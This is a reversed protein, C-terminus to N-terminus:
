LSSEYLMYKLTNIHTLHNLAVIWIVDIESHVYTYPSKFRSNMYCRNWQTYTYPSKFRRNMYCRTWWTLFQWFYHVRCTNWLMINVGIVFISLCFVWFKSFFILITNNLVQIVVQKREHSIFELPSAAFGFAFLDDVM